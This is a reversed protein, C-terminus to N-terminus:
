STVEAARMEARAARVSAIWTETDEDSMDSLVVAAAAAVAAAARKEGIDHAAVGVLSLIAAAVPRMADEAKM